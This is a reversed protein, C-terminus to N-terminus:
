ATRAPKNRLQQAPQVPSLAVTEIIKMAEAVGNNDHDAVVHNAVALAEAHANAPAIATGVSAFMSLDNQGDGIAFAREFPIGTQGLIRKVAHGKSVEAPMAELCYPYTCILDLSARGERLSAARKIEALANANNSVFLVKVITETIDSFHPVIIQEFETRRMVRTIDTHKRATYWTTPSYFCVGVEPYPSALRAVADLSSKSFGEAAYSPTGDNRLIAGGNCVVVPSPPRELQHAFQLASPASRGTCIIIDASKPFRRVAHLTPTAITLNSNLLTGDLDVFIALRKLPHDLRTHAIDWM